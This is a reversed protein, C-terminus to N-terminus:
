SFHHCLRWAAHPRSMSAVVTLARQCQVHQGNLVNLLPLSSRLLPLSASVLKVVEPRFLQRRRAHPRSTGDDPLQLRDFGRATFTRASKVRSGPQSGPGALGIAEAFLRLTDQEARKDVCHSTTDHAHPITILASHQLAFGALALTNAQDQLAKNFIEPWLFPRANRRNDHFQLM